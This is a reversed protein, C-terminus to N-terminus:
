QRARLEELVKINNLVEQNKLAILQEQEKLALKDMEVQKSTAELLAFQETLTKNKNELEIRGKSIEELTITNSNRIEEVLIKTSNIAKLDNENIIRQEEVKAKDQNHITIKNNLDIQDVKIKAEQTDLRSEKENLEKEKNNNKVEKNTVQYDRDLISADRNHLDKEFRLLEEKEKKNQALFTDKLIMFEDGEKKLRLKEEQVEKVGEKALHLLDNAEKETIAKFESGEQKHKSGDEILGKSIVEADKVIKEAKKNAELLQLNIDRVLNTKTETYEAIEEKLKSLLSYGDKIQQEVSAM